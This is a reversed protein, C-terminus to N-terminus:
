ARGFILINDSNTKGAITLMDVDQFFAGLDEIFSDVDDQHSDLYIRNFIALGGPRLLRKLSAFFNGSNGLDPFKDGSYIDVVIADYDGLNIEHKEPEVIVRCADEVIVIHNPIDDLNFYQKAIEVMLNDIEVSVIKVGPFAKSILHQMAGGALGMIMISRLQPEHEKLVEVVQGFVMKQANPSDWNISQVTGDCVLKRTAGVEWVEVNGNYQSTTQYIVKPLKVNDWITM